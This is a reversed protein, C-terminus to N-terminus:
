AMNAGVTSRLPTKPNYPKLFWLAAFRNKTPAFLFAFFIKLDCIRCILICNTNIWVKYWM